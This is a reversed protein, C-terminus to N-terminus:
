GLSNLILVRAQLAAPKPSRSFRIADKESSHPLAGIPSHPSPQWATAIAGPKRMCRNADHGVSVHGEIRLTGGAHGPTATAVLIATATLQSIRLRGNGACHGPGLDFPKLHVALARRVEQLQM